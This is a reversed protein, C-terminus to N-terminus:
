RLRCSRVQPRSRGRADQRFQETDGESCTQVETRAIPHRQLIMRGAFESDPVAENPLGIASLDAAGALHSDVIIAIPLDTKISECREAFELPGRCVDFTIGYDKVTEAFHTIEYPLDDLFLLRPM